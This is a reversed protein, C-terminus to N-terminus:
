CIYEYTDDTEDSTEQSTKNRLFFRLQGRTGQSLHEKRWFAQAESKHPAFPRLDIPNM